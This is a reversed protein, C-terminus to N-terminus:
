VTERCSARGIQRIDVKAAMVSIGNEADSFRAYDIRHNAPGTENLMIGKWGKAGGLLVPASSSGNIRITGSVAIGAAASGAQVKTGPALTLVVGPEVSVMDKLIVTGSWTTNSKIPAALVPTALLLAFCFSFIKKRSM